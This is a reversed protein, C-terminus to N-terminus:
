EEQKQFENTYTIRELMTPHGYRFLKVLYPPNVQSLGAKALKQFSTVAAQNDNTMELAYLDAAKEQNRSVTNSVPDSVFSLVSILLLFLPLVAIDKVSSIKFRSGWKKVMVNMLKSIIFLGVLTLLLYGAIGFYIHKMVYHGMEHAMIFLIESESLRELTTDWLVIRSNSGIGTVYANLSNTKESMNVEFVHDAPIDARDALELIKSELEKNTLPFFDNYLPDIIVPQVFMLFMSFPISLLWAHFWWRKENRRILWFLVGVILIMLGYNVWFDILVDKMWSNTSQVTINYSKSVNYSIWAIPFSLVEVLLSLWFLYIATQLISFKTSVKSWDRFKASIGVVLVIIYILWEFPVSLFYLLNKIQSYEQSLLLERENMFTQPDAPSGKLQSPIDTTAGFFLYWAIFLGFVLYIGLSWSIVKKM